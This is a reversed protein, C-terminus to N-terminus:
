PLYLVVLLQDALAGTNGVLPHLLDLIQHIHLRDM